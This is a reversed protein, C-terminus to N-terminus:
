GVFILMYDKDQQAQQFITKLETIGEIIHRKNFAKDFSNDNHWVEPYIGNKNLEEADYRSDIDAESVKKLVENIKIIKPTDLYPMFNGSEYFEFQEEPTMTEFEQGGLQQKPYFLENALEVTENDQGKALIFEIGMFSQQVTAYNKACSSLDM